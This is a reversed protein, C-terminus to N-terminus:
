VVSVLYGGGSFLSVPFQYWRLPCMVQQGCFIVCFYVPFPCRSIFAGAVGQLLRRVFVLFFYCM